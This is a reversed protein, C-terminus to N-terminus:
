ARLLRALRLSPRALYLPRLAVPPLGFRSDPRGAVAAPGAVSTASRKGAIDGFAEIM